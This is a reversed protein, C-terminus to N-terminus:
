GSLTTEVKSYNKLRTWLMFRELALRRLVEHAECYELLWDGDAHLDSLQRDMNM